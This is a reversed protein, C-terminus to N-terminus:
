GREEFGPAAFSLLRGADGPETGEARGLQGQATRLNGAEAAM